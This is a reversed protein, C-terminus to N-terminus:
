TRRGETHAYTFFSIKGDVELLALEVERLDRIGEERAAQLLDSDTLREVRMAERQMEGDRVVIVPQGEILRRAKPFRAQVWALFATLVGFTSVALIGGVMSLDQQVIASQVLDAVVLVLLLEFVNLEGLTSKGLGRTVVFLFVYIIVSRVVIEM